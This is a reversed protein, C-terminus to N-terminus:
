LTNKKAFNTKVKPFSYQFNFFITVKLNTFYIVFIINLLFFVKM